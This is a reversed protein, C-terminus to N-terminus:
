MAKAASMAISSYQKIDRKIVMDKTDTFFKKVHDTARHADLAAANDYIEIFLVRHPDDNAVMIDFQRVGADKFAATANDKALALFADFKDPVVDINVVNVFYPGPAAVAQDNRQPLMSWAGATVACAFAATLMSRRLISQRM